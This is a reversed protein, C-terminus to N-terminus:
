FPSKKPNQRTDFFTSIHIVTGKVRYYMKRHKDIRIERITKAKPSPRGIFPQKKLLELNKYVADVFTEASKFNGESHFYDIIERIRKL